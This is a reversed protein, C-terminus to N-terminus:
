QKELLLHVHTLAHHGAITVQDQTGALHQVASKRNAAHIQITLDQQNRVLLHIAAVVAQGSMM